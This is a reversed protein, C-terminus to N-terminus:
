EELEDEDDSAFFYRVGCERSCYEKGGVRFVCFDCFRRACAPCKPLETETVRECVRCQLPSEVPEELEDYAM